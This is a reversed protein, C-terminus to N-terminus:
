SLQKAERWEARRGDPREAVQPPRLDSNRAAPIM